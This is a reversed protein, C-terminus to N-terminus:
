EKEGELSKIYDDYAEQMVIQFEEETVENWNVAERYAAEFGIRIWHDRESEEKVKIPVEPQKDGYDSKRHAGFTNVPWYLSHKKIEEPDTCGDYWIAKCTNCCYCPESSMLRTWTVPEPSERECIQCIKSFQSM